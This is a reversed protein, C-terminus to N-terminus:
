APIALQFGNEAALDALRRQPRAGMHQIV